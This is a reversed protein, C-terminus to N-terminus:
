INLFFSRFFVYTYISLSIYIGTREEREQWLAHRTQRRAQHLQAMTGQESAWWLGHIPDGESMWMFSIPDPEDGCAHLLSPIHVCMYINVHIFNSWMWLWLCTYHTHICVYINVHIFNSWIWWWLCTYHTHICMYVWWLCTYHTHTCMYVRLYTYTHSHTHMCTHVQASKIALSIQALRQLHEKLIRKSDYERIKKRAM